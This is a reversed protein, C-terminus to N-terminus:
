GTGEEGVPVSVSPSFSLQQRPLNDKDKELEVIKLAIKCQGIKKLSAAGIFLFLSLFALFDSWQTSALVHGSRRPM